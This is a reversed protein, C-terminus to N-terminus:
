RRRRAFQFALENLSLRVYRYEILVVAGTTSVSGENIIAHTLNIPSLIPEAYVKEFNAGSIAGAAETTGDFRIANLFQEFMVESDNDFVNVDTEDLGLAEIQGDEVRVTQQAIVTGFGASPTITGFGIHGSISAIEIAEQTGINFDLEQSEAAALGGIFSRAVRWDTIAQPM